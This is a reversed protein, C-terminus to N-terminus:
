RGPVLREAVKEGGVTPTAKEQGVSPNNEYCPQGGGEM